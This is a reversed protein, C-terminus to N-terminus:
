GQSVAQDPDISTCFERPHGDTSSGHADSSVGVDGGTAVSALTDAPTDASTDGIPEGKKDAFEIGEAVKGLERRLEARVCLM